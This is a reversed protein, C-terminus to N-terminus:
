ATRRGGTALDECYGNAQFWEAARRLAEVAPRASYGLERAAKDHRVWMKKRAMRVGDLPARPEQGTLSAWGTSAVGAAYAVAYPIRMTPAQKGTVEELKGFIQQLTLNEGGLIYREGVRGREGALLHGAAVDGVYVVNLGTDLYAPMAGRLFDVVIKGTPTPRFDHDGVPATPNVIVVPFGQGAFQLAIQEALFKSRKYPGRMEKLGAPTDESGLEGKRIGICGVTSTYVCQEVGAKQAASLLSRTGDVNSRYMEEPRPTWLRYDAAVHYVTGCGGVARALSDEDRLDGPVTEIETGIGALEALAKASRVPDRVLARVRQGRQLLQRAVHWGIFGTAGTVLVPKM